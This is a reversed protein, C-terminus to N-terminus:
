RAGIPFFGGQRADRASFTAGAESAGGASVDGSTPLRNGALLGDAGFQPYGGRYYVVSGGFGVVDQAIVSDMTDM